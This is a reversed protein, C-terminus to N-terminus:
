YSNLLLGQILTPCTLNGDVEAGAMCQYQAGSSVPSSVHNHYRAVHQKLLINVHAKSKNSVFFDSCQGHSSCSTIFKYVNKICLKAGMENHELHITDINTVGPHKVKYHGAIDRVNHLQERCTEEGCSYGLQTM